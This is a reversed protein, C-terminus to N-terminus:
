YDETKPKNLKQLAKKAASQEAEKKSKGKGKGLIKKKVIVEVEFTKSHNPGYEVITRYIPVLKYQKQVVEQLTTKYDKISELKEFLGDAKIQKLVFSRAGTFGKDLYISGIVAEFADALISPRNRGGSSIEGKGLKIYKGINLNIALKELTSQNVINARLKSLKGEEKLPYKNFFYSSIVLNIVSDGLFELRENHFDLNNENAYSKHTLAQELLIKDKFTIGLVAEFNSLAYMHSSFSEKINNVRKDLSNTDKM